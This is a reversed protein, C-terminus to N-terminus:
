QLTNDFVSNPGTQVGNVTMSVSNLTDGASSLSTQHVNKIKCQVILALFM